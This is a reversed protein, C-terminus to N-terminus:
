GTPALKSAFITLSLSPMRFTRPARANKALVSAGVIFQKSSVGHALGRRNQDNIVLRLDAFKQADAQGGM